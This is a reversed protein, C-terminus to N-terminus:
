YLCHSTSVDYVAVLAHMALFGVGSVLYIPRRGFEESFPATFLPTLGFGLPFVSLGITAQFDTCNLDQTM